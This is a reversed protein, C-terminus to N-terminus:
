KIIYGKWLSEKKVFEIDALQISFDQIEKRKSAICIGESFVLM